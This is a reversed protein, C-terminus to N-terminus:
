LLLDKRYHEEVEFSGGGGQATSNTYRRVLNSFTDTQLACLVHQKTDLTPPASGPIKAPMGPVMYQLDSFDFHSMVCRLNSADPRELRLVTQRLTSSPAFNHISSSRQFPKGESSLNTHWRQRPFLPEALPLM